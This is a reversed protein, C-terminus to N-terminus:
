IKGSIDEPINQEFIQQCFETFIDQIYCGHVAVTSIDKFTAVVSERTKKKSYIEPIAIKVCADTFIGLLSSLSNSGRHKKSKICLLFELALAM